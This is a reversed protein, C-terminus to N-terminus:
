HDSESYKFLLAIESLLFVGSAKKVNVRDPGQITVCNCSRPFPTRIFVSFFARICHRSTEIPLTPLARGSKSLGPWGYNYSAWGLKISLCFAGSELQTTILSLVTKDKEASLLAPCARM